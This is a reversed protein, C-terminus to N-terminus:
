KGGKKATKKAIKKPARNKELPQLEGTESDVEYQAGAADRYVSPELGPLLQQAPPTTGPGVPLPIEGRSIVPIQRLPATRRLEMASQESRSAIAMAHFAVVSPREGRAGVWAIREHVVYGNAGGKGGIAVVQIWNEAALVAVARKVTAVSVGLLEALAARSAVVANGAAMHAVLLHALRAAAPARAMLAAWEEHARRETQVWTAHTRAPALVQGLHRNIQM